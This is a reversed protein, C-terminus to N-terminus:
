FLQGLRFHFQWKPDPVLRGTTLDRRTRDFGYALDLGLPGLPTVTSVGFGASRFLRTPNFQRPSRFNNGADYFASAYLAQSVRLGVEATMTFFANGFGGINGRFQDTQPDFGDPTISFEPYGRLAQGFMVGGVAFQQFQFFGGPDGSLAGARGTLGMVLKIPQSGPKKGGLLALPAYARMETTYRQFNVRGGLLGGSFDATVSQTSGASPFPMDVRTDHTFEVGVNSRPCNTLCSINSGTFQGNLFTARELSYTVALRSFLSGPVPFGLRVNGGTTLNQGLNSIQFRSQSRRLTVAGSVRSKRLSPDSYTANLDNFFRGYQWNLSGRKCLGFLNPQDVGIFGGFGVGGQGMSAGFNVSGTRKEKVRFVIDVDGNDNVRRPEPFPLPTEFFGLNGISQWSRLLRDQNFVDGPIIFIQERICQESTYDNGNVDVRNVIAPNREDIQWRMNLLPQSDPGVVRDLVPEVQAYIYGENRYAGQVKETAADWKSRDFVGKPASPGRAILGKVRSTLSVAQPQFPYYQRLDESSFRRNGVTEFSGIKYQPGENVTIEVLAKGNTRDVLLTDKVVQMDVFGLTAYLQPIREGLDGTFNDEDFEGKRFWWFGEPKTKMSGAVTAARVRENGVIRVGSIALRRGEDVRFTLALQGTSDVASSDVLVRALYFGAAEYVSDIRQTIRAVAAPDVPRGILLDVKDRVTRESVAQPGTVSVDRLLPRERVTLVLLTKTAGDGAPECGVEVDEFQGTQYLSRLARQLTPFNLETAPALGADTRITEPTLRRAGRVVISDPTACAGLGAQASAARPALGVSVAALLAALPWRAARRVAPLWRPAAVASPLGVRFHM